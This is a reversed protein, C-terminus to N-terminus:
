IYSTQLKKHGFHGDVFDGTVVLYLCVNSLLVINKM